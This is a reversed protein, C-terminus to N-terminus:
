VTNSGMMLCSLGKDVFQSYHHKDRLLITLILTICKVCHRANYLNMIYIEHHEDCLNCLEM